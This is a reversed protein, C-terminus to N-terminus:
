SWEPKEFKLVLEPDCKWIDFSSSSNSDFLLSFFLPENM